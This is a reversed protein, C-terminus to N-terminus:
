LSTVGQSQRLRGKSVKGTVSHPLDGVVEVVTPCKFRALRTGVFDLVEDATLESGPEVVIFAKVAEGTYPDTVGMVAAELVGDMSLLVDEVERPYVNFGSVIILERRRDVLRLDGEDDEIAVDGTAFWGQEDPGESGDPWYGAFVNEGRVFIEGPDGDEVVDGDEDRLELEIGPLPQGVSGPKPRGSVLSAAIVPSCETMGYGEWIPKGTRSEFHEMVSIPLPSAGSILLRVDQLAEALGDLGAWAVYMPPAGAVNTVRHRAITALAAAADFRETLVITAAHRAVMGLTANLAYIHFLPLVCMVVDDGTMAPPDQVASLQDLNATLARHTLM